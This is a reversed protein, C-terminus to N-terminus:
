LPRRSGLGGARPFGNSQVSRRCFFGVLDSPSVLPALQDFQSHPIANGVEDLRSAFDVRLLAPQPVKRKPKRDIIPKAIHRVAVVNFLRQGGSEVDSADIDASGTDAGGGRFDALFEVFLEDGLMTQVFPSPDQRVAVAAQDRVTPRKAM